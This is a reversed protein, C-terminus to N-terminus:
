SLDAPVPHTASEQLRCGCCALVEVLRECNFLSMTRYCFDQTLLTAGVWAGTPQEWCFLDLIHISINEPVTDLWDNFAEEAMEVTALGQSIAYCGVQSRRRISETRTVIIVSRNGWRQWKGGFNARPLHEFLAYSSHKAKTDILGGCNTAFVAQFDQPSDNM